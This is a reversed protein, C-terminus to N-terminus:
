LLINSTRYFSIYQQMKAGESLVTATQFTNLIKWHILLKVNYFDDVIIVFGEQILASRWALQKRMILM